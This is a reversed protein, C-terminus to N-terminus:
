CSVSRCERVASVVFWGIVSRKIWTIQLSAPSWLRQLEAVYQAITEGPAQDRLHFRFCEATIIPQPEFHWKLIEAIDEFPKSQPLEPTVLNHLLSYTKGRNCEISNSCAQRWLGQQGCICNSGSWTCPSFKPSLNSHSSWGLYQTLWLKADM